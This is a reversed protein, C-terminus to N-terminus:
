ICEHLIGSQGHEKQVKQFWDHQIKLYRLSTKISLIQKETNQKDFHYGLIRPLFFLKLQEKVQLDQRIDKKVRMTGMVVADEVKFTPLFVTHM